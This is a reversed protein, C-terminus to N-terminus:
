IADVGEFFFAVFYFALASAVCVGITGINVHPKARNYACLGRVVLRAAQQPRTTVTRAFALMTTEQKNKYNNKYSVYGYPM